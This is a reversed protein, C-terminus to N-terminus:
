RTTAQLTFQTKAPLKVEARSSILVGSSDLQLGSIGVVGSGTGLITYSLLLRRSLNTNGGPYPAPPPPVSTISNLDQGTKPGLARITGILLVERGDSSKVRDFVIGLSSTPDGKSRARAETVHGFLQSGAPMTQVGPIDTPVAVVEDGVKLQASDLPKTFQLQFIKLKSGAAIAQDTAKSPTDQAICLYPILGIALIRLM